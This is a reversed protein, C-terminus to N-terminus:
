PYRAFRKTSSGPRFDAEPLNPVIFACPETVRNPSRGPGCNGPSSGKTNARAPYTVGDFDFDDTYIRNRLIKHVTFTPV